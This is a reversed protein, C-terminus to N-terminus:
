VLSVHAAVIKWGHAVDSVSGIRVWTQMQRGHLLSDVDNTFETSVTAFDSGFTTIITHHLLRKPPAPSANARWMHIAEGGYQIDTIGYRVTEQASWFLTNMMNVDNDILAQEYEIFAAKVQAVVEPKNVELAM